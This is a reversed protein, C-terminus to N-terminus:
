EVELREVTIQANNADPVNYRIIGWVHIVTGTDRVAELQEGIEGEGWIGM